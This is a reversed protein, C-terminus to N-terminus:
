KIDEIDDPEGHIFKVGNFMSSIEGCREMMDARFAFYVHIVTFIAFFWTIYHHVIHVNYENGLLTIVPGFLKGTWSAPHINGYMAFGTAIMLLLAAYVGLYSTRALSNRLVPRHSSRLFMYHLLVDLLGTWYLKTWFKPLLRDGKYRIWGYIRLIFSAVLVYAFAFHVFRITEMSLLNGVAFNAEEGVTGIFAPNGIYLGTVFLVCVSVVM